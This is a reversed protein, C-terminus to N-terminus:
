QCCVKTVRGQVEVLSWGGVPAVSLLPGQRGLPLEEVLLALGDSQTPEDHSFCEISEEQPWLTPSCGLRTRPGHRLKSQNSLSSFSQGPPVQDEEKDEGSQVVLLPLNLPMWRISCDVMVKDLLGYADKSIRGNPAAM